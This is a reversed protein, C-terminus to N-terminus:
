YVEWAAQRTAPENDRLLKELSSSFTWVAQREASAAFYEALAKKLKTSESAKLPKAVPPRVYCAQSPLAIVPEENLAVVFLEQANTGARFDKMVKRDGHEVHIQYGREKRVEF